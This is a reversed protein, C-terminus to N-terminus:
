FFIDKYQYINYNKKNSYFYNFIHEKESKDINNQNLKKFIDINAIESALGSPFVKNIQNTVIDFKGLKFIKYMNKLTKFDFYPRDANVRIFSNFNFKDCCNITRSILNNLSGRYYKIKNKKCLKIIQNDSRRKSTNVVIPLHLGSRRVRSIILELITTNNIKKLVKGPLRKSSTRAYVIIGTKGM